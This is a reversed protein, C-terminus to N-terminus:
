SKSRRSQEIAQVRKEQAVQTSMYEDNDFGLKVRSSEYEDLHIELGTIAQYTVFSGLAIDAVVNTCIDLAEYEDSTISLDVATAEVSIKNWQYDTLYTMANSLLLDRGYADDSPVVNTPIDGGWGGVRIYKAGYYKADSLDIYEDKISTFMGEDASKYAMVQWAADFITYMGNILWKKNNYDIIGITHMRCSIFVGRPRKPDFTNPLEYDIVSYGSGVSGVPIKQYDGKHTDLDTGDGVDYGLYYDDYKTATGLDGSYNTEPLPWDAVKVPTDSIDYEIKKEVVGYKAVLSDSYLYISGAPHTLGSVNEFATCESINLRDNDDVTTADRRIQPIIVDSWGSMVIWTAGIYQPDSLNIEEDIATDFGPTNFKRYGISDGVSDYVRWACDELYGAGCADGSNTEFQYGRWSIYLKKLPTDPHNENYKRINLRYVWYGEQQAAYINYPAEPNDKNRVYIAQGYWNSENEKDSEWNAVVSANIPTFTNNILEAGAIVEGIEKSKVYQLEGGFPAVASCPEAEDTKVVDVLNEGISIRQGDNLPFQNKDYVYVDWGGNSENYVIKLAGNALDVLELVIEMSVDYNMKYSTMLNSNANESDYGVFKASVNDQSIYFKKWPETFKSNHNDFVAKLLQFLSQNKYVKKNTLSDNLYALAGEAYIAQNDYIDSEVSKIRGIFIIKNNKEVVARTRGKIVANYGYNTQPITARFTGAKNAEINLTPDVLGYGEEQSMPDYIYLKDSSLTEFRATPTSNYDTLYVTYM